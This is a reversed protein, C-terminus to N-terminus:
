LYHRMVTSCKSSECIFYTVIEWPRIIIPTNYEYNSIVLTNSRNLKGFLMDQIFYLVFNQM